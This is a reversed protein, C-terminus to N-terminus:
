AQKVVSYRQHNLIAALADARSRDSFSFVDVVYKGNAEDRHIENYLGLERIWGSTEAADERRTFHQIRVAWKEPSQWPIGLTDLIGMALAKGMAEQDAPSDVADRDPTDLFAFECLVSGKGTQHVTFISFFCFSVSSIKLYRM